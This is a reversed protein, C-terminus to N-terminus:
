VNKREKIKRAIEECMEEATGSFCDIEILIDQYKIRIEKELEKRQKDFLNIDTTLTTDWKSVDNKIFLHELIKERDSKIYVLVDPRVCEESLRMYGDHLLQAIQKSKTAYGHARLHALSSMYSKDRVVNRKTLISNIRLEDILLDILYFNEVKYEDITNMLNRLDDGYPTNSFISKIYEAQLKEAMMKALTTKGTGPMGEFVIYM